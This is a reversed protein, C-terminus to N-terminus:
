PLQQDHPWFIRHMDYMWQKNYSGTGTSLHSTVCEPTHGGASFYRYDQTGPIGHRGMVRGVWLDEAWHDPDEKILFDSGEPCLWYGSGGSAYCGPNVPAFAAVEEGRFHGVYDFKEFGSALLRKTSCYTDVFAQFIFDYGNERAWRHGERTKLPLSEYDDPVDFILEDDDPALNWKGLIFRYPIRPDAFCTERQAQQNGNERDRKCSSILIIPNM